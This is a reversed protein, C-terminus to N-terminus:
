LQGNWFESPEAREPKLKMKMRIGFVIVDADCNGLNRQVMRCAILGWADCVIGPSTNNRRRVAWHAGHISLM